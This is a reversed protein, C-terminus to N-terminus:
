APRSAEPKGLAALADAATPYVPLFQDLGAIKFLNRGFSPVRCAALKVGKPKLKECLTLIAGLGSSRLYRIGEMDVVIAKAGEPVTELAHRLCSEIDECSGSGIEEQTYGILYVGRVLKFDPM